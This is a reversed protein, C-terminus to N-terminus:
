VERIAALKDTALRSPTSQRDDFRLLMSYKHFSKLPMTARFVARGSEADWLSAAAEGRSRYVGALILLGVYACLDTADMHLNTIELIIREIAPTVFQHFTSAIDRTHTVAYATPGPTEDPGAHYIVRARHRGCPVMQNQRKEVRQAGASAIEEEHEDEPAEEPDEESSRSSAQDAECEPNYEEWDESVEEESDSYDEQDISFIQELDQATTFCVAM